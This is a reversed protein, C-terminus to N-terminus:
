RRSKVEEALAQLAIFTKEDLQDRYYEPGSWVLEGTREDPSRSYGFFLRAIQGRASTTVLPMDAGTISEAPAIEIEDVLIHLNGPASWVRLDFRERGQLHATIGSQTREIDM